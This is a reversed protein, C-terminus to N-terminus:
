WLILIWSLSPCQAVYRHFEAVGIPMRMLLAALYCLAISDILRPFQVTKGGSQISGEQDSQEGASSFFEPEDDDDDADPNGIKDEYTELRLAWLDRVVHEFNEPFGQTQVLAHCQKWLILQYTQLFLTVAPRGHYTKKGKEIAAKKVRNLKGQSGFDDPDEEIQRGEQQHGRRCWWIGNDLYYRRERCGEQGCVGRTIYEM